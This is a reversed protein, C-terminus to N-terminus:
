EKKELKKLKTSTVSSIATPKRESTMSFKCGDMGILPILNESVKVKHVKKKSSNAKKDKATPTPNQEPENECEQYEVEIKNTGSEPKKGKIIIKGKLQEPSPYTRMDAPPTYIQDGFVATM